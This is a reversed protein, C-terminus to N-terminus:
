EAHCGRLPSGQGRTFRAALKENPRDAVAPRERSLDPMHRVSVRRDSWAYNDAEVTKSERFAVARDYLSKQISALTEGVAGALAGQTIFSKGEKGPKDRRALVLTDKALDKPGIEVRLPIGRMEWDNFKFGPSVGERQDLITRFNCAVLEARIRKAAQLVKASEEETKYIPVIVV